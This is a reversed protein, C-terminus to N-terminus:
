KVGINDFFNAVELTMAVIGIFIPSGYFMMLTHPKSFMVSIVSPVKKHNLRTKSQYPNLDYLYERKGEPRNTIVWEYKFRYLKEMKLFFADLCWFVLLLFIGTACLIYLHLNEATLAVFVAVLMYAWGKIMFSNQAMRSICGQILDIEKHFEEISVNNNQMKRWM